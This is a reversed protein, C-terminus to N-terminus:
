HHVVQRRKRPRINRLDHNRYTTVIAGDAEVLVHVGEARSLDLGRHAYHEVERRGVVRFTLGRAHVCRGFKLVAEVLDETIGRQQMRVAAHSTVFHNRTNQCVTAAQM